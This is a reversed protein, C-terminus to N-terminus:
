SEGGALRHRRESTMKQDGPTEKDEREEVGTIRGRIELSASLFGAKRSRNDPHFWPVWLVPIGEGTPRLYIITGRCSCFLIIFNTKYVGSLSRPFCALILCEVFCNEPGETPWVWIGCGERVTRFSGLVRQQHGPLQGPQLHSLIAM